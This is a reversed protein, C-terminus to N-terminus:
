PNALGLYTTTSSSETGGRAVTTVGSNDVRNLEVAFAPRDVLGAENYLAM